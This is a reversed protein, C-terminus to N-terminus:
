LWLLLITRCRGLSDFYMKTADKRAEVFGALDSKRINPRPGSSRFLFLRLATEADGLFPDALPATM